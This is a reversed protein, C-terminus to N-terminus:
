PAALVIGYRDLTTGLDQDYQAVAQRNSDLAAAVSNEITILIQQAQVVALTSSNGERLKKEENELAQAALQYAARDAVLRQRASDIQAAGTTVAVSIAAELDHVSAEGQVLRLRAARAAGRGAANTLPISVDVGLASSPYLRDEVQHRSAIFDRALGNYGYGAVLNVEPLLQNRAALDQAHYIAVGLRAAAYDPRLTLAKAFDAAPHVAIDPPPEAVVEVPAQDGPHIKDGLLNRLESELIRISNTAEIVPEDRMAVQTQATTVDSQAMSGAHLRQQNERLLRVALERSSRAIRLQDHALVLESYVIAVETVTDILTQRYQWKSITRNARAVRVNVLNPGFGFGRLLPQTLNVGGFSTFDGGFHGSQTRENEATGGVNYVTGTPLLGQLALSYNDTKTLNGVTPNFAALEPNTTYSRSFNLAPDFAGYAALVNAAAIQPAYAEVEIDRNNALALLIAQALSLSTPPVASEARSGPPAVLALLWIGAMVRLRRATSPGSLLLSKQTIAQMLSLPM